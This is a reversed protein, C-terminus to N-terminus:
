SRLMFYEAYKIGFYTGFFSEVSRLAYISRPHYNDRQQNKYKQFRSIKSEIYAESDIFLNPAFGRLNTSGHVYGEIVTGKFLHKRLGVHCTKAVIQHDENTDYQHHIVVLKSENSQGLYNSILSSIEGYDYYQFKQDLLSLTQYEIEESACAEQFEKVLDDRFYMLPKLAISSQEKILFSSEKSKTVQTEHSYFLVKVKKGKEIFSEMLSGAMLCEDDPHACIVILESYFNPNLLM